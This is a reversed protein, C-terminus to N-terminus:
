TREAIVRYSARLGDAHQIRVTDGKRLHRLFVLHTDRHGGIVSNGPTGPLPMGDQHGPSFAITRGSAGALVLLSAGRASVELKAVTWTDAWPWPKVLTEGALTRAWAREILIQVLQAKAQIWVGQGFQLAGAVLPLGALWPLLRRRRPAKTLLDPLACEVGLAVEGYLRM